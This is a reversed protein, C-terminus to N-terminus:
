PHDYVSVFVVISGLGKWDHEGTSIVLFLFFVMGKVESMAVIVVTLLYWEGFPVPRVVVDVFVEISGLVGLWRGFHFTM